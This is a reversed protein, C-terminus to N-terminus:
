CGGFKQLGSLFFNLFNDTRGPRRPLSPGGRRSSFIAVKWNNKFHPRALSKDAGRYFSFYKLSFTSFVLVCKKHEIAKKERFDHSKPSLPPFYSLRPCAMSPLINNRM